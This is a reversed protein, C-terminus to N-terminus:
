NIRFQDLTQDMNLVFQTGLILYMVGLGFLFLVGISDLSEQIDDLEGSFDLDIDPYQSQMPAWATMVQTNATVTDTVEADIEAEVTIARRFNYHRITGLTPTRTVDMLDDLSVLGGSPTALQTQLLGEPSDMQSQNAVVRVNVTEGADQVSAVIEGDVLM